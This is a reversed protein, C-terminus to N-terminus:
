AAASPLLQQLLQNCQQEQMFRPVPYNFYAESMADKVIGPFDQEKLEALHNPIGVEKNFDFLFEVMRKALQQTDDNAQDIGIAKAITALKNEISPASYKIVHPLLIANGLGHAVGYKAGLQHSIAHVYGLSAKTFALGAKYSALALASRAEINSGDAVATPLYKCILRIAEMAQEDTYASGNRGVYAEIAHTLADMGTAATLAPPITVMFTPDLATSLSATRPDIVFSKSKTQNDSLVSIVTVESGTGATTPVAYFPLPKRLAKFYGTLKEPRKKNSASLAIVKALDMASGGGIALVCECQNELLLDLAENTISFTPDPEVRDFITVSINHKEFRDVIPQVQGRRVLGAGTVILVSKHNQGAIDDVLDLSSNEGEFLNPEKILPLSATVKLCFMWVYNLLKGFFHNM